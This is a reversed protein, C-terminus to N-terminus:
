PKKKKTEKKFETQVAAGLQNLIDKVEAAHSGNPELALYKQFAEVTGPAPIMKMMGGETKQEVKSLLCIGLLYHSLADNPDVAVAKQLPEVAESTKGANYLVIGANRWYMGAQAPELEAAKRFEELAEQGKGARAFVNGLNNHYGAADPRIAIAKQYADAAEDAQKNAAYADGLKALIVDQSPDLTAAQQLETIALAYNGQQFAATGADFHQKLEEFKKAAEEREKKAKVLAPNSAIEKKMDFDLTLTDGPRLVIGRFSYVARGEYKLTITYRGPQLGVYLYEGRKDTKVEAHTKVDERDIEIIAGVYPQGNENTCKGELRSLSQAAAVGAALLVGLLLGLSARWSGEWKMIAERGAM